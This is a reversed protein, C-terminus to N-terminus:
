YNEENICVTEIDEADTLLRCLNTIGDTETGTHSGVLLNMGANKAFLQANLKFEGCVYVDCGENKAARLMEVAAGSGSTVCVRLVPASNNIYSVVQRQSKELKSILQQMTVAKEFEGVVSVTFIEAYPNCKYCNKLGLSKAFAMSTGWEADDLPLHFFAHTIGNLFMLRYCEERIEVLTNWADHHTLFLDVKEKIAEKVTEVTLNVACGVRKIEKDRENFFGFEDPKLELKEKEFLGILKQRLKFYNM